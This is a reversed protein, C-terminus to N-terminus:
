EIGNQKYLIKGLKTDHMKRYLLEIKSYANSHKVPDDLVAVYDFGGGHYYYKGDVVRYITRDDYSNTPTVKFYKRIHDGRRYKPPNM